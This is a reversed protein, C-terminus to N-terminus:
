KIHSVWRNRSNEKAFMLIPVFTFNVCVFSQRYSISILYVTSYKKNVRKRVSIMLLQLASMNHLLKTFSETLYAIYHM